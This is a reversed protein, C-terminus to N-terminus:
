TIIERSYVFIEKLVKMFVAIANLKLMQIQLKKM